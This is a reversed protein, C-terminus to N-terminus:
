AYNHSQVVRNNIRFVSSITTAVPKAGRGYLTYCESSCLFQETSNAYPHFTKGCYKCTKNVRWSRLEKRYTQYCNRCIIKQHPHSEAETVPQNCDRWCFSITNKRAEEERHKQKRQIRRLKELLSTYPKKATVRYLQRVRERTINYKEGVQQLTFNGTGLM